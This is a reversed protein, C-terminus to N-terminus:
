TPPSNGTKGGEVMVTRTETENMKRREYMAGFFPIRNLKEEERQTRDRYIRVSMGRDRQLRCGKSRKM